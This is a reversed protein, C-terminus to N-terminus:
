SFAAAEFAGHPHNGSRSNIQEKVEIAFGNGDQDLTGDDAPGSGMPDPDFEGREGSGMLLPQVTRQLLELILSTMASPLAGM